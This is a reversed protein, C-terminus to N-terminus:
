EAMEHTEPSFIYFVNHEPDQCRYLVEGEHTRKDINMRYGHLRFRKSVEEVSSVRCTFSTAASEHELYGAVTKELMLSFGDDTQFEVWFSSDLVPDGLNLVDRYFKRCLDLDNVKIIVGFLSNKM